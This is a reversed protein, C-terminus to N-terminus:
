PAANVYNLRATGTRSNIHAYICSNTPPLLSVIAKTLGKLQPVLRALTISAPSWYLSRLSLCRVGALSILLQLPCSLRHSSIEILASCCMSYPYRVEYGANVLEEFQARIQAEAWGDDNTLVIKQTQVLAVLSALLVFALTTM